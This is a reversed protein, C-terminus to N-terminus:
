TTLRRRPTLAARLRPDRLCLGCWLLIGFCVPMLTHTLLPSELRVHTAVAGGLFGTLLIAGLVTTWPLLYLAACVLVVIGLPLLVSAPYGQLIMTEVMSRPQAMMAIGDVLLLLAPLGGLVWGAWWARNSVTRASPPASAPPAHGLAHTM